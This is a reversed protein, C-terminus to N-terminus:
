AFHPLSLTMFHTKLLANYRVTFAFGLKCQFGESTESALVMPINARFARTMCYFGSPSPTCAISPCTSPCLWGLRNSSLREVGMQLHLLTKNKSNPHNQRAKTQEKRRIHGDCGKATPINVQLMLYQLWFKTAKWNQLSKCNLIQRTGQKLLFNSKPIKFLVSVTLITIVKIPLHFVNHMIFLWSFKTWLYLAILQFLLNSDWTAFTHNQHIDSILFKVSCLITASVTKLTERFTNGPPNQKYSFLSLKILGSLFSGCWMSFSLCHTLLYM